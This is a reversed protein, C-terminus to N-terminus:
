DNRAGEWTFLPEGPGTRRIGLYGVCAKAINRFAPAAVRGGYGVGELRPDDVVVTIVLAPREAPFFGTFSAVHHRSSYRGDVLKKTTGTKGAVRYGDISAKEATGEPSAVRELIGAVTEAVSADVVRRKADPRFRLVTEGSADFIRRAIRPEMLIGGNAIVSTAGHVQLPTAGVAYGVPMRTITLGDWESVPHLTGSVEGGMGLGTRRGYGFAAAYERLRRPGLMMGLRAAGRNSSQIVIERVSLADEDGHDEPLRVTRGRYRVRSVDTRFRDSPAVIRENLAAAATVIKFTSGPEFIDTIARNRQNAVPYQDTKFFANPDYTPHNALALIEGTTPESVIVSVGAPRYERVLRDIEREAFHQVMQHLTLEVNLGNAPAVERERFRAVERRAGDRETERWGDQGRLYYDFLREAGTVATGAKNVYGLVHAATEGGPYVRRYAENGYVGAIGLAMVAEYTAEGLGEALPVWKIRRVGPLGEGNPRTKTAFARRVEAEPRDILAALEGIKGRDKEPEASQPDVGLTWATHSTAMLNGRADVVNGRRSDLTHVVQRTTEAARALEAHQWVHLYALRGLVVAFAAAVCVGMFRVRASSVFAKSM